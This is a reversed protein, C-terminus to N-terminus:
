WSSSLIINFSYEGPSVDVDYVVKDSAKLTPDEDTSIIDIDKGYLIVRVTVDDDKLNKLVVKIKREYRTNSVKRSQVVVIKGEVDKTRNEIIKVYDGKPGGEFKFSGIPVEGDETDKFVIVEGDPLYFGLGNYPDNKIYIVYMSEQYSTTREIPFTLEYKRGIENIMADFVGVGAGSKMGEVDGIHFVQKEYMQSVDPAIPSVALTKTTYSNDRVSEQPREFMRGSILYVDGKDVCGSKLKISMGLEREDKFTYVAKWYGNCAFLVKISSSVRLIRRVKGNWNFMYWGKGQSLYTYYKGSEGRFIIPLSSIFHLPENPLDNVKILKVKRIIEQWNPRNDEIWWKGGQAYIVEVDDPLTIDSSVEKWFVTADNFLYVVNSLGIITLILVVFFTGVKRM